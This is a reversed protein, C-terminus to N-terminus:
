ESGFSQLKWFISSPVLPSFNECSVVRFWLVSTKLLYSESGFYQLKWFIRSPVLPSFNESSVVRFWLVSTKVLYSESGFYQLKWFIRSPVLTSFNESSVVRFWLVSTKLLYSESGFSQLKWLIRSPVLTSFNESSIVRFWFVSTKLFGVSQHWVWKSETESVVHSAKVFKSTLLRTLYAWWSHLTPLLSLEMHSLSPPRWSPWRNRRPCVFGMTGQCLPPGVQFWFLVHLQTSFEHYFVQFWYM